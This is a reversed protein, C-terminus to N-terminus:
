WFEFVNGLSNETLKLWKSVFSNLTILNIRNTFSSKSWGTALECIYTDLPVWISFFVVEYGSTYYIPL